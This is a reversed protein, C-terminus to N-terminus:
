KFKKNTVRKHQLSEPNEIPTKPKVVTPFESENLLFPNNTLAPARGPVSLVTGYQPVFSPDGQLHQAYLAMIGIFGPSKLYGM